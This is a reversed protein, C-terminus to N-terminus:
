QKRTATFTGAKEIGGAYYITGSMTTAEKDPIIGVFSLVDGIDLEFSFRRKDGGAEAVKWDSASIYTTAGNEGQVKVEGSKTVVMTFAGEGLDKTTQKLDWAGLVNAGTGKSSLLPSPLPLGAQALAGSPLGLASAAAAAAAVGRQAVARRSATMTVPARFASCAAACLFVQLASFARM